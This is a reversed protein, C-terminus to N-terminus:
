GNRYDGTKLALAIKRVISKPTHLEYEWIIVTRFGFKSFQLRRHREEERKLRGTKEVGHWYDGFLEVLLKKGNVNVFDPICGAILVHGSVNLRFEGPFHADLIRRLRLEAANPVGAFPLLIKALRETRQKPSYSDWVAKMGRSVALRAALTRKRGTM